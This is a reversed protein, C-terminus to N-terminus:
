GRRGEEGERKEAGDVDKRASGRRRGRGPCCCDSKAVPAWQGHWLIVGGKGSGIIYFLPHNEALPHDDRQIRFPVEM